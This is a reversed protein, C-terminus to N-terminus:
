ESAIINKLLDFSITYGTASTLDAAWDNIKEDTLEGSPYTEKLLKKSFPKGKLGENLNKVLFNIFKDKSM